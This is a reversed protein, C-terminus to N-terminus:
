MSFEGFVGDKINSFKWGALMGGSHIPYGGQAALSSWDHTIAAVM